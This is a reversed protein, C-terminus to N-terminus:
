EEPEWVVARNRGAEKARSLAQDARNLVAETSLNAEHAFVAIGQSVTIHLADNGTHVEVQVLEQRLREAFCQAGYQDTEPLLIAFAEDGYRGVTDSVRLLSRCQEAVIWLVRDGIAHGYRENIWKFHDIDLIVLSLSHGYRRSREFEKEALKVFHRRNALGTLPDTMTLHQLARNAYSLETTRAAVLNELQNYLRAHALSIAIQGSLLKLVAFRDATFAGSTLSNELYIIGVLKGQHLLPMCLISRAHQALIYSDRGFPHSSTTDELVVSEHTRAVYNIITVPLSVQGGPGVMTRPQSVAVRAQEIKGEAEIVWAGAQELLLVGRQAGANEVVIQVLRTLLSELVIESSIAQSAQLVSMLDLKSAIRQGTQMSTSTIASLHPPIESWKLLNPYRAELDRVKAGAGWHMYADHADQMYARAARNRGRELYFLAACECALAGENIYGHDQALDIAQDYLVSADSDQGSVRLREAEVLYYKHLYNMPAHQAWFRMKEQNAEIRDLAAADGQHTSTTVGAELDALSASDDQPPSETRQRRSIIGLHVLSDYFYFLQVLLLGPVSDIYKEAEAAHATARDYHGFLYCLILKNLHVVYLGTRDRAERQLPLMHEEDYAAGQLCCLDEGGAGMLNLAAQQYTRHYNLIPEQQLRQIAAGYMAQDHTVEQLNRGMFLCYYCYNHIALSAFAIDGTELGSQYADLLSSLAERLHEKHHRIFQNFILLTRCRHAKTRFQELMHLAMQGFRYGTNIDHMIGCLLMGYLTYAFPSEPANGYRFSIMAQKLTLLPFLASSLNYCARAMHSSIRMIALQYPDTMEPLSSLDEIHTDGLLAATEQAAQRVEAPTPQEPLEMGLMSLAQLGTRVSELFRHQGYYAQVKIEYIPVTDLATHAQALVTESLQEMSAVDGHLYAAEAAEVHLALTLDYQRQWSDADLLDLGTSLYAFAADYATAVKAKRGALLNLVALDEQSPALPQAAMRPESYAEQLVARGCNLHYVIDFIHEELAPCATCFHSHRADAQSEGTNQGDIDDEISSSNEDQVRKLLLTGIRWHITQRESEPILRYVAQQIRDHAFVYEANLVDTLGPVDLLMFKYSDGLPVILGERLASELNRATEVPDMGSVISLRMLDFRNGICAALTLMTQTQRSLRQVKRDLLGVVNDTIQQAQIQELDWQWRGSAHDFNLLGETYLTRLFAQIFFPNSATKGMVLEALPRVETVPCHLTEAVMAMVASLELPELLLDHVPVDSRPIAQLMIQLPHGAPAENDRYAGILLLSQFHSDASDVDAMLREILRLSAGDAWQMDDLFLVLPHETWTFVRIFDQFILHFRNHAEDLPLAPVAPQAGMILEVEPIVEIIVRGNSGLAHSLRERWVTVESPSEMLLYRVLSQFAQILATYPINRQLQDFKGAIFIGEQRAIAKYLEQVLATKGIGAPGSVLMMENAGGRVRDFAALLTEIEWERGYLKQPILLRDAVDYQGPIFAAEARLEKAGSDVEQSMRLCVELDAKLGYASQYRDEANKSMLKLVIASFAQLIYAEGDVGTLEHLPTPQRAIHSHILELPNHSTFPLQGTVLEYLTVGLSYFDTRYDVDRNMRGTQEPSMYAMTGELMRPNHFLPTEHSLVTSIGFDIIKLQGTAPNLIINSPNIDKHILQQQHIQSLIDAIQIALHLVRALSLKGALELRTLSESGSDELVMCWRQQDTELSYAHAVGPLALAHTIEYERRFRAIKEPTPHTDALFKLIVPQNDLQRQGRYVFSRSSQYLQETIHYGSLAHM